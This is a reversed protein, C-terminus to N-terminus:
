QAGDQLPNWTASGVMPLMNDEEDRYVGAIGTDGCLWCATDPTHDHWEIECVRCHYPLQAPIYTM